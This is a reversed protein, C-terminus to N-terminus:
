DVKRSLMRQNITRTLKHPLIHITNAPPKYLQRKVNHMRKSCTVHPETLLFSLFLVSHFEEQDERMYFGRFDSQMQMRSLTACANHQIVQAAMVQCCSNWDSQQARLGTGVVARERIGLAAVRWQWALKSTRVSTLVWTKYSEWLGWWPSAILTICPKSCSCLSHYNQEGRSFIREILPWSFLAYNYVRKGFLFIAELCFANLTLKLVHLKM